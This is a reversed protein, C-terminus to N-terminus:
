HCTSRQSTKERERKKTKKPGCGRGTSTELSPTSNSSCSGAQVEAVAVSSGLQTEGWVVAGPLAPDKVWPALGPILGVVEHNRTLNREAM